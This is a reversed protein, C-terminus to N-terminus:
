DLVAARFDLLIPFGDGTEPVLNLIRNLVVIM